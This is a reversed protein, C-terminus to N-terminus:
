DDEFLNEATYTKPKRTRKPKAEVAPAGESEMNGGNSTDKSCREAAVEARVRRYEAEPLPEDSGLDRIDYLANYRYAVELARPTLPGREDIDRWRIGQYRRSARKLAASIAHKDPRRRFGPLVHVESPVVGDVQAASVPWVTRGRPLMARRRYSNAEQATGALIIVHAM